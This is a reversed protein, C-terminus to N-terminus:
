SFFVKEATKRLMWNKDDPTLFKFVTSRRFILDPEDAASAPSLTALGALMLLAAAIPFRRWVPKARLRNSPTTM